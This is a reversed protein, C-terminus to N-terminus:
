PQIVKFHRLFFYIGAVPITYLMFYVISHLREIRHMRETLKEVKESLNDWSNVVGSIPNITATSISKQGDKDYSKASDPAAPNDSDAALSCFWVLFADQGRKLHVPRPGANFVSFVLKGSYGPDVHFGSINVLGLFKITTKMSIFAMANTPVRINEETILFSFQGSPIQFSENKKLQRVSRTHRDREDDYPSVYLDEGITLTIANCDIRKADIADGSDLSILNSLERELHQSTWFSM